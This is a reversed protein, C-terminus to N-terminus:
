DGIERREAAGLLDAVIDVIMAQRHGDDRHATPQGIAREAIRLMGPMVM